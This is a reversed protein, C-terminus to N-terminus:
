IPAPLAKVSVVWGRVSGTAGRCRGTPEVESRWSGGRTCRKCAPDTKGRSGPDDWRGRTSIMRKGSSRVLLHPFSGFRRRDHWSSQSSGSMGAANWGGLGSAKRRGVFGRV